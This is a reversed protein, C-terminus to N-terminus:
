VDILRAVYRPLPREPRRIIYHSLLHPPGHADMWPRYEIYMIGFGCKAHICNKFLRCGVVNM